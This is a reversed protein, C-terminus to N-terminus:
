VPGVPLGDGRVDASLVTLRGRKLGCHAVGTGGPYGRVSVRHGIKELDGLGRFGEEVLIDVGGGWLFRPLEVASQLDLGYDVLNTILLAHQQPRYDGGSTGLSLVEDDESVAIVASLTHLPRKRPELRNPGSRCFYSARSNLLIGTEPDILGSGFSHFLSQIASVINGWRDIVVFNTTDGPRLSSGVLVSEDRITGAMEEARSKSLIEELPMEVFRPDALYRNKELYARKAAEVFLHIRRAGLPDLAQLDFNELINLILFTTAGQSNPPVEYVEFGRYSTRLPSVWEGEFEGFDDVDFIGGRSNLFRSLSEAIWGKYFERPDSALSCLSRALAKQRIIDGPRLPAGDGRFFVAAGPQGAIKERGRQIASSLGHTVPFGEEALAIAREALKGFKVTGFREHIKQLGSILGPVVVAHPSNVPIRKLGEEELLQLNLGKPAWGSSNMCHVKGSSSELILAFFDGGISGLHPQTVALTLSVSVAADVANGGESLVQCGAISALPHESSVGGTLSMFPAKLVM